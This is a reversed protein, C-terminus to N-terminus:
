SHLYTINIYKQMYMYTHIICSSLYHNIKSMYLTTHITTCTYISLVATMSCHAMCSSLYCTSKAHRYTTYLAATMSRHAMCSSLYHNSKQMHTHITTYLVATMSRYAMCSLVYHHSKKCTYDICSAGKLNQMCHIYIIRNSGHARFNSRTM